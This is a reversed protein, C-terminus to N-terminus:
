VNLTKDPTESIVKFVKLYLQKIDEDNDKDDEIEFKIPLIGLRQKLESDVKIEITLKPMFEQKMQNVVDKISEMWAGMIDRRMFIVNWISQEADWIEKPVEVNIIKRNQM